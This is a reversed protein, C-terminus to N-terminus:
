VKGVFRWEGVNSAYSHRADDDERKRATYHKTKKQAPSRIKSTGNRQLILANELFCYSIRTM